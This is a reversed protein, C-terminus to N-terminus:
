IKICGKIKESYDKLEEILKRRKEIEDVFVKDNEIEKLVNDYISQFASLGKCTGMGFEIQVNGYKRKEEVVFDEPRIQKFMSQRLSTSSVMAKGICLRLALQDELGIHVNCLKMVSEVIVQNLALRKANRIREYMEHSEIIKSLNEELESSALSFLHHSKIKRLQTASSLDRWYSGSELKKWIDSIQEFLPGYVEKRMTEAHKEKRERKKFFTQLLFSSLVVSFAGSLYSSIPVNYGINWLYFSTSLGL